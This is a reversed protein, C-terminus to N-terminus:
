SWNLLGVSLFGSEEELNGAEMKLGPPKSVPSLRNLVHFTQLMNARNRQMLGLQIEEQLVGLDLERQRVPDQAALVFGTEGGLSWVGEELLM